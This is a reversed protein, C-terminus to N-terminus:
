AGPKSIFLFYFPLQAGMHVPCRLTAPTVSHGSPLSPQHCHRRPADLACIVHLYMKFWSGIGASSEHPFLSPTGTAHPIMLGVLADEHSRGQGKEHKFLHSLFQNLAFTFNFLCVLKQVWRELKQVWQGVELCCSSVSLGWRPQCELM